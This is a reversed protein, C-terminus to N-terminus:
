SNWNDWCASVVRTQTGCLFYKLLFLPWSISRIYWEVQGFSPWPMQRSMYWRVARHVHPLQVVSPTLVCVYVRRTAAILQTKIEGTIM